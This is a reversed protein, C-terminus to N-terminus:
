MRLMPLTLVVGAMRLLGARLAATLRTDSRPEPWTNLAFFTM